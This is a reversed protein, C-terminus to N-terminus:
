DPPDDFQLVRGTMSNFPGHCLWRGGLRRCDSQCRCAFCSPGLVRFHQNFMLNGLPYVHAHSGNPSPTEESFPRLEQLNTRRNAVSTCIDLRPQVRTRPTPSLADQFLAVVTFRPELAVILRMAAAESIRPSVSYSDVTALSRGISCVCMLSNRPCRLSQGKSGLRKRLYM